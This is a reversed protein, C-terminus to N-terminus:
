VTIIVFAIAAWTLFPFSVHMLILKYWMKPQNIARRRLYLLWSRKVNSQVRERLLSNKRHTGMQKEGNLLVCARACFAIMEWAVSKEACYALCPLQKQRINIYQPRGSREPPSSSVTSLISLGFLPPFSPINLPPYNAIILPFLVLSSLSNTTVSVAGGWVEGRLEPTIRQEGSGASTFLLLQYGSWSGPWISLLTIRCSSAFQLFFFSLFFPNIGCLRCNSGKKRVLLEGGHFALELGLIQSSNAFYNTSHKFLRPEQRCLPILVTQSQVANVPLVPPTWCVHCKSEHM